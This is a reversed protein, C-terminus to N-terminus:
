RFIEHPYKEMSKLFYQFSNNVADELKKSDKEEIYLLLEIGPKQYYDNDFFEYERKSASAKELLIYWYIRELKSFDSSAIFLRDGFNNWGYSISEIHTESSFGQEMIWNNIKENYLDLYKKKILNLENLDGNFGPSSIFGGAQELVFVGDRPKECSVCLFLILIFLYKM